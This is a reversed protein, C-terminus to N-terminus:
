AAMTFEKKVGITDKPAMFFMTKNKVWPLFRTTWFASSYFVGKNPGVTNCMAIMPTEAKKLAMTPTATSDEQLLSAKVNHALTDATRMYISGSNPMTPSCDGFAFVNGNSSPVTFYEDTVIWGKDDLAQPFEETTILSNQAVFGTTPIVIDADIEKQANFLEVKGNGLDNAKENLIFKVGMEELYKQVQNGAPESMSPCVQGSSHVITKEPAPTKSALDGALETGILGGGIIVIKKPQDSTGKALLREGEAKLANLRYETTTQEVSTPLDRGLGKWKAGAGTAIVCADFSITKEESVDGISALVATGDKRLTKVITHKMHEVNYAECYKDLRILSGKAVWEEFISRYTAWLIEAYEKPEVLIIKVDKDIKRLQYIVSLGAVGGGIVLVTKNPQSPPSPAFCSLM